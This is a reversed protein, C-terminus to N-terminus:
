EPDVTFKRAVAAELKSLLITQRAASEERSPKTTAFRGVVQREGRGSFRVEIRHAVADRGPQVSGPGRWPCHHGPPKNVSEPATTTTGKQPTRGPSAPSVDPSASEEADQELSLTPIQEDAHKLSGVAEEEAMMQEPSMVYFQRAVQQKLSDPWNNFLRQTPTTKAIDAPSIHPDLRRLPRVKQPSRIKSRHTLLVSENAFKSFRKEPDSSGGAKSPPPTGPRRPQSTSKTPPPTGPRKRLAAAPEGPKRLESDQDEAGDAASGGAGDAADTGDKSAEPKESSDEVGPAANRPMQFVHLGVKAALGTNGTRKHARMSTKSKAGQSLIADLGDPMEKRNEEKPAWAKLLRAGGQKSHKPSKGLVRGLQADLDGLRPRTFKDRGRSRGFSSMTSASEVSQPRRTGPYTSKNIVMEGRLPALYPEPSAPIPARLLIPDGRSSAFLKRRAQEDTSGVSEEPEVEEPEVPERPAWEFNPDMYTDLNLQAPVIVSASERTVPDLTKYQIYIAKPDWGEEELPYSPVHHDFTVLSAGTLQSLDIGSAVLSPVIQSSLTNEFSPPESVRVDFPFAPELPSPSRTTLTAIPELLSAM